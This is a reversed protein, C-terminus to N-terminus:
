EADCSAPEDTRNQSRANRSALWTAWETEDEIRASPVGPGPRHRRTREPLGEGPHSEIWHRIVERRCSVANAGTAILSAASFALIAFAILRLPKGQDAPKPDMPGSLARRPIFVELGNSTGELVEVRVDSTPYPNYKTALAVNYDLDELCLVRAGSDIAVWNRGGASARQDTPVRVLMRQSTPSSVVAETGAPWYTGQSSACGNALSALIFAFVVWFIRM